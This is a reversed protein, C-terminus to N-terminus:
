EETQLITQLAKLAHHRHSIKNKEESKLQAMSRDFGDPQFIPDYGFGHEGIPKDLIKGQCFGEAFITAENPKALALVCVFRAGRADADVTQMLQLVKENNTADTAHESAFRASYVGPQGDLADIALGSDDALVPIHVIQCIGEAKLRANEHFTTGTEEIEPLEAAYDDMSIVEIGLTQFMERFEAIKGKNRSAILIQKM